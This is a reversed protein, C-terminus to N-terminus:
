NNSLSNNTSHIEKMYPYYFAYDGTLAARGALINYSNELVSKAVEKSPVRITLNISQDKNAQMLIRKGPPPQPLISGFSPLSQLSSNNCNIPIKKAKRKKGRSTLSEEEKEKDRKPCSCVRVEISRRGVIERTETELTFVLQTARRNMGTSCSNKCYFMFDLPVYSCGPQPAGLPIIVSNHGNIDEYFSRPHICRVVQKLILPSMNRNSPSDTGIHNHCRLVPEGRYRDEAFVLTTRLYLNEVAPSWQFRLPQRQEMDIFIKRLATSYVSSKGKGQPIFLEFNYKGPFEEIIPVTISSQRPDFQLPDIAIGNPNNINDQQPHLDYKREMSEEENELIPLNSLDVHSSIEDFVTSDYLDSEQSGSYGITTCMEPQNFIM